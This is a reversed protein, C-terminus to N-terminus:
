VRGAIRLLYEKRNLPNRDTQPRTPLTGGVASYRAIDFDCEFVGEGRTLAPL